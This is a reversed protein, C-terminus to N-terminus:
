QMTLDTPMSSNIAILSEAILAELERFEALNAEDLHVNIKSTAAVLMAYRPGRQVPM